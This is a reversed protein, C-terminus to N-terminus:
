SGKGVENPPHKLNHVLDNAAQTMLEYIIRHTLKNVSESPSVDVVSTNGNVYGSDYKGTYGENGNLDVIAIRLIIRVQTTITFGLNTNKYRYDFKTIRPYVILDNASVASINKTLQAGCSCVQNFVVQAIEKTLGGIPMKIGFAGGTISSPPGKYVFNDDTETTYIIAKCKISIPKDHSEVELYSPKYAVATTCGTISASIAILFACILYKM